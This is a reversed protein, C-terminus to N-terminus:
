VTESLSQYSQFVFSFDKDSFISLSKEKTKGAAPSWYVTQAKTVVPVSLSIWAVAMPVNDYAKVTFKPRM